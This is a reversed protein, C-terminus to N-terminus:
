DSRLRSRGPDGITGAALDGGPYHDLAAHPLYVADVDAGFRSGGRRRDGPQSSKASGPQEPFPDPHPRRSPNAPQRCGM